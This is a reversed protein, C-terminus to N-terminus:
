KQQFSVFLKKICNFPRDAKFTNSLVAYINVRCAVAVDTDGFDFYENTIFLNNNKKPVRCRCIKEKIYVETQYCQRPGLHLKQFIFRNEYVSGAIKAFPELSFMSSLSKENGTCTTGNGVFGNQCTCDFAGMTNTCSAFEDCNDLGDRCEDIDSVTPLFILHHM